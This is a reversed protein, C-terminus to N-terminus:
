AKDLSFIFTTGQDTKSRVTITQNHAQITHKVISLGLGTGGSERSRSKDARFFREFIRPLDKEEIGIGNDTIDVLINEGTDIFGITTKGGDKGYKISNNILNSIVEMIRKRDAEVKIAKNYNSDFGIKINRQRARMEQDELVEEVVRVLNFSEKKLRFEGSELRAIADLDDVISILRNTSKEARKLYLRNVDQDEMGGDLLTLIYGQINFIPTKLEHSVNGLFDKRYKELQRLKKIEETQNDAWVKVEQNLEEIVNDKDIKARLKRQSMTYSHITNYIPNIRQEVFRIFFFRVILFAVVGIVVGPILLQLLPTQLDPIMLLAIIGVSILAILLAIVLSYTRYTRM